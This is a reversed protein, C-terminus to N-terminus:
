PRPAAHQGNRIFTAAAAPDDAPCQRGSALNFTRGDTTVITVIDSGDPVFIHLQPDTM